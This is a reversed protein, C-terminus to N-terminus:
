PESIKHDLVCFSKQLMIVGGIDSMPRCDWRWAYLLPNPDRRRDRGCRAELHCRFLLVDDPLDYKLVEVHLLL